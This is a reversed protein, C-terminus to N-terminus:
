SAPALGEFPSTRGWLPPLLVEVHDAAALYRIREATREFTDEKRLPEDASFLDDWHQPAVGLVDARVERM